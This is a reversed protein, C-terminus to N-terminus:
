AWPEGEELLWVEPIEDREELGDKALRDALENYYVNTHAEVKTFCMQISGMWRRMAAAYKQTLETKSKWEGTVWKEIGAYDYRLEIRQFRNKIAWRVAFMAGLMEGSVNRLSATEPNVGSGNEVYVTDDPLIFVCGFAYKRLSHEYSGDVYAVLGGGSDGMGRPRNERDLLARRNVAMRKDARRQASPEATYATGEMYSVAEEMTRFSKYEAAPYGDVAEQCANWNDLIGIVRGRRVAYLKKAAM